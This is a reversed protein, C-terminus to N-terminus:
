RSGKHIFKNTFHAMLTLSNLPLKRVIKRTRVNTLGSFLLLYAIGALYGTITPYPFPTGYDPKSKSFRVRIGAYKKKHKLLHSHSEFLVEKAIREATIFNHHLAEDFIEQGGTSRIIVSSWGGRYKERWIDGVSIDALENTLDTCLLCRDPIYLSNYINYLSKDLFKESNHTKILFGGPHGGGRYELSSIEEKRIGLKNILEETAEFHMNFGCFLGICYKIKCAAKVHAAQSKRIGHIHCPLGVFAFNGESNDLEKLVMNLPVMTYKSQSAGIIEEPTRAVKITYDWPREHDKGVVVAGDIHGARLLYCLLSTVVGGSSAHARIKVDNSHAAYMSRYYGFYPDPDSENFIHKNLAPFNIEKGPCTRLCLGCSSCEGSFLIRENGVTLANDPCIGVCTGCFTCLGPDIDSISNNTYPTLSPRFKGLKMPNDNEM